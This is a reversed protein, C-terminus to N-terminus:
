AIELGQERLLEKEMEILELEKKLMENREMMEEASYYITKQQYDEGLFSRIFSECQGICEKPLPNPFEPKIIEKIEGYKLRVAAERKRLAIYAPNSWDKIKKQYKHSKKYQTLKVNKFEEQEGDIDDQEHRPRMKSFASFFALTLSKLM